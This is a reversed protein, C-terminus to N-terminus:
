RSHYAFFWSRSRAITGTGSSGGSRDPAHNSIIRSPRSRATSILWVVDADLLWVGWEPSHPTIIPETVLAERVKCRVAGNTCGKVHHAAHTDGLIVTSRSFRLEMDEVGEPVLPYNRSVPTLCAVPYGSQASTHSKWWHLAPLRHSHPSSNGEATDTVTAGEINRWPDALRREVIQSFM